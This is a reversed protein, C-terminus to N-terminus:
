EINIEEIIYDHREDMIIRIYSDLMTEPISKRIDAFSMYKAAHKMIAHKARCYNSYYGLIVSNDDDLSWDVYTVVYATM